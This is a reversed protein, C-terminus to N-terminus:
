PRLHIVRLNGATGLLEEDHVLADFNTMADIFYPAAKKGNSWYLHQGNFYERNYVGAASHFDIVAVYHIAQQLLYQKLAASGKFLPMGDGPSCEGPTDLLYLPNRQYDWGIPGDDIVFVKEGPPILQQAQRQADAKDVAMLSDPKGISRGYRMKLVVNRALPKELGLQAVTALEDLDHSDVFAPVNWQGCMAILAVIVAASAGLDDLSADRLTLAMTFVAAAFLSPYAYRYLNPGDADSLSMTMVIFTVITAAWLPAAEAWAPRRWCLVVSLLLPWAFPVLVERAIRGTAALASIHQGMMDNARYNGAILPYYPTASSQYLVMAWPVVLLTAVVATLGYACLHVKRQSGFLTILYAGALTLFCVPALNARLSITAAAVVGLMIAGTLQKPRQNVLRLTAALALFLVAGTLTCFSNLMPVVFMQLALAFLAALAHRAPTKPRILGVALLFILVPCLGVELLFLADYPVAALVQAQLLSHGGYTALRRLSFPELLTGTQLIRQVMPLYAMADDGSDWYFPWFAGAVLRPLLGAMPLIYILLPWHDQISWGRVFAVMGRWGRVLAWLALADGVLTVAILVGATAHHLLMLVGGIALVLAMGWACRLGLVIDDNDAKCLLAVAWGLGYWSVMVAAGWALITLIDSPTMDIAVSFIGALPRCLLRM